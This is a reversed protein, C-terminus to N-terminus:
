NREEIITNLASELDPYKFKFGEDLLRKPYVKQSWLFLEESMEGLGLKLLISPMPLWSPKKMKDGLCQLLERNTVSQPSTLNFIGNLNEKLLLFLIASIEDTLSIWSIWQNGSGYYGGIYFKFPIIMKSLAGGSKGLVVGSRVVVLRLGLSKIERSKLEVERCVESLFGNGGESDEDLTETGRPGYYGIASSQMFVKPKVQSNDIAKSLIRITDLRSYLIDKKRKRTWRGSAVNTGALNVIADSNEICSEWKGFNRGDWNIIEVSDSFVENAKSVNRTLAVVKHSDSLKNCLAQGIFGTAGTVIVKM